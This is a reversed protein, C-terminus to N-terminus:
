LYEYYYVLKDDETTVHSIRILKKNCLEILEKKDQGAVYRFYKIKAMGFHKEQKNLEEILAM